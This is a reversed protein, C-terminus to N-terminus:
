DGGRAAKTASSGEGGDGAADLARKGAAANAASWESALQQGGPLDPAFVSQAIMRLYFDHEPVDVLYPPRLLVQACIPRQHLSAARLAAKLEAETWAAGALVERFDREVEKNILTAMEPGVRARDAPTAGGGLTHIWRFLLSEKLAVQKDNQVTKPLEGAGIARVIQRTPERLKDYLCSSLATTLSSWVALSAERDGEGDALVRLADLVPALLECHHQAVLHVLNPLTHWPQPTGKRDEVLGLLYAVIHTKSPDGLVARLGVKVLSGFLPSTRDWEGSAPDDDCPAHAAVMSALIDMWESPHICGCGDVELAEGNTPISITNVGDIDVDTYGCARSAAYTWPTALDDTYEVVGGKARRVPNGRWDALQAAYLLGLVKPLNPGRIGTGPELAARYAEGLGSSSWRKRALLEEILFTDFDACRAAVALLSYSHKRKRPLFELIRYDLAEAGAVDLLLGVTAKWAAADTARDPVLPDRPHQEPIKDVFTEVWEARARAHPKESQKDAGFVADCVAIAMAALDRRSAMGFSRPPLARLLLAALRPKRCACVALRLMRLIDAEHAEVRTGVGGGSRLLARRLGEPLELPAEPDDVLSERLAAWAGVVNIADDHWLAMGLLDWKLELRAADDLFLARWRAARHAFPGREASTPRGLLTQLALQVTRVHAAQGDTLAELQLPSRTSLPNRALEFWNASGGVGFAAHSPAPAAAAAAAAAREAADGEPEPEPEGVAMATALAADVAALAAVDDRAAAEEADDEALVARIAAASAADITSDLLAAHAADM